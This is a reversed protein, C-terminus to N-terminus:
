GGKNEKQEKKEMGSVHVVPGLLFFFLGTASGDMWLFRLSAWFVM